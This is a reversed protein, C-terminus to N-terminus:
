FEIKFLCVASWVFRCFVFPNQLIWTIDYKNNQFARMQSNKPSSFNLQSGELLFQIFSFMLSQRSFKHKLFHLKEDDVKNQWSLKEQGFFNIM